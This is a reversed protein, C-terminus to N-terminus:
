VLGGVYAPAIHLCATEAVRDSVVLRQWNGGAAFILYFSLSTSAQGSNRDTTGALPAARSRDQHQM